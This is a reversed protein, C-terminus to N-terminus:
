CNVPRFVFLPLRRKPRLRRYRRMTLTQSRSLASVAASLWVCRRVM